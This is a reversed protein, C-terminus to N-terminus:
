AAEAKRWWRPRISAIDTVGCHQTLTVWGQRQPRGGIRATFQYGHNACMCGLEVLVKDDRYPLWALQHTHAQAIIRWPKLGIVGEFDAFWEEVKRLAAGPVTSFKEAHTVILDGYQCFWSATIRDDIRHKALEVNPFQRCMAEVTSLTGGSLYRIIDIAELPLREHLLKEFRASDHNGEILVVRGFSESLRELITQAAALEQEIPVSEYKLFRSISYHDQLDGAVICVDAGKEAEIFAAFAEWHVFPAHFDSVVVIRETDNGRVHSKGRGHPGKYASATCGIFQRYLALAEDYDRPLPRATPPPVTAPRSGQKCPTCQAYIKRSTPGGCTSCVGPRHSGM